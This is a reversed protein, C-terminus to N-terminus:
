CLVCVGVSCVHVRVSSAVMYTTASQTIARYCARGGSEVSGCHILWRPMEVVQALEVLSLIACLCRDFSRPVRTQSQLCMCDLPLVSLLAEM